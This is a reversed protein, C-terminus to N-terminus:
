EGREAQSPPQMGLTSSPWIQRGQTLPYDFDGGSGLKGSPEAFKGLRPEVGVGFAGVSAQPTSAEYVDVGAQLMRWDREGAPLLELIKDAGGDQRAMQFAKGGLRQALCECM